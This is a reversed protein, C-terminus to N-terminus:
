GDNDALSEGHDHGKNQAEVEYVLILLSLTNQIRNLSTADVFSLAIVHNVQGVLGILFNRLEAIYILVSIYASLVCHKASYCHLTTKM